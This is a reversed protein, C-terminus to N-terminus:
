IFDGIEFLGSTRPDNSINSMSGITIVSDITAGGDSAWFMLLKGFSGYRIFGVEHNGAHQDFQTQMAARAADITAPHTEETAQHFVLADPVFGLSFHDYSFTFNTLADIEDADQGIPSTDPGFVFIDHGGGGDIRDAGRDGMLTDDGEGGDIKDNGQGGRILDNGDHGNISDNDRNGNITDNGDGGFIEDQGQGGNIRDSGKGGDLVDDGANGQLYDSGDDGALTDNGDPGGNSSQGFLHDNGNGGLIVDSGDGGFLNDHGDLGFFRDDQSTGQFIDNGAFVMKLPHTGLTNLQAYFASVSLNLGGVKFPIAGDLATFQLGTITGAIPVGDNDYRVGIGTFTFVGREQEPGGYMSTPVLSTDIVLSTSTQVQIVAGVSFISRLDFAIRLPFDNFATVLM